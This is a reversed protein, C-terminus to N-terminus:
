NVALDYFGLNYMFIATEFRTQFGSLSRARNNEIDYNSNLNSFCREISSRYCSLQYNNHDKAGKMNKRYPTWFNYGLEKAKEVYEQGIYGLDGLVNKCPSQSILEIAVNVDHISAQAISYDLIIGTASVLCHAKFGYFSFGKTANKGVDALGNFIKTFCRRHPKSVPMPFSDIIAIDAGIGGIEVLKRRMFSIVPLLQRSRRNFRSRSILNTMGLHEKLFSHFKRQSNMGLAAQYFMLALIHADSNVALHSNKRCKLYDPCLNKYLFQAIKEFYEFNGQLTQHKEKSNLHDLM